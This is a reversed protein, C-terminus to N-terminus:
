DQDEGNKKKKLYLSYIVDFVLFALYLSCYILTGYRIVDKYPQLSIIDTTVLLLLIVWIFFVVILVKKIANYWKM